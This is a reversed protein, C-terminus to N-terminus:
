IDEFLVADDPALERLAEADFDDSALAAHAIGSGGLLELLLPDGQRGVLHRWEEHAARRAEVRREEGVTAPRGAMHVRYLALFAHRQTEADRM